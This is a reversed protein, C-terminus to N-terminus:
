AVKVATPRWVSHAYHGPGIRQVHGSAIMDRMYIKITEVTYLGKLAAVITALPVPANAERLIRLVPRVFAEGVVQWSKGQRYVRPAQALEIDLAQRQVAVVQAEAAAVQAPTEPAKPILVPPKFMAEAVVAAPVQDAMAKASNAILCDVDAKASDAPQDALALAVNDLEGDAEAEAAAEAANDEAEAQRLEALADETLGPAAPSETTAAAAPLEPMALHQTVHIFCSECVSRLPEGQLKVQTYEAAGCNCKAPDSAEATPAPDASVMPKCRYGGREPAQDAAPAPAAAAAASYRQLDALSKPVPMPDVQLGYIALAEVQGRIHQYNKEAATRAQGAEVVKQWLRTHFSTANELEGKAEEMKDILQRVREQREEITM